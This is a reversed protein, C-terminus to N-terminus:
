LRYMFSTHLNKFDVSTKTWEEVTDFLSNLYSRRQGYITQNEAIQMYEFWSCVMM